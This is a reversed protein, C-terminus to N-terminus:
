CELWIMLYGIRKIKLFLGSSLHHIYQSGVGLRKSSEFESARPEYM